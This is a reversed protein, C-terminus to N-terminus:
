NLNLVIKEIYSKKKNKKYSKKFNDKVNIIKWGFVRLLKVM